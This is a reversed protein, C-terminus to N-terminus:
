VRSLGTEMLSSESPCCLLVVSSLCSCHQIRLYSLEHQPIIIIIIFWHMTFGKEKGKDWSHGLLGLLGLLGLGIGSATGSLTVRPPFIHPDGSKFLPVIPSPITQFGHCLSFLLKGDAFEM